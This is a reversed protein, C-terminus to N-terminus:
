PRNLFKKGDRIYVGKGPQEVKRGSLDYTAGDEQSPADSLTSAVGTATNTFFQWYDFQMLDKREAATARFRFYVDHIGTITEDLDARVETWEGSEPVNVTGVINSQTDICVQILGPNKVMRVALMVSKAGTTGFDVSKVKVYDSMDLSDLYVGRKEDQATRVGSSMGITEAEQRIYPSLHTVAETVGEKTIPIHPITGDENYTFEEVCVSRRFGSGGKLGGNHYFIFSRGKFDVIGPHTTFSGEPTDMIQGCYKWPGTPSDSMSYSLHEPIGGAAYVLYYKGNREYAWPGEEYKDTGVRRTQEVGNEDVYTEDYGGVSEVTCPVEVFNGNIAMMNRSLRAYRLKTNGWYLYAQEDKDIFVTPDIDYIDINILPKNLVDRWPGTPSEGILVGIGRLQIPVYLFWKGSRSIAHPAWAGNDGAWSFDALSAVTGRDTWNLMDTSTYLQWYTKQYGEGEENDVSTYLYCTDGMVYPAPDATYRTQIIPNQALGETFPSALASTLLIFFFKNM